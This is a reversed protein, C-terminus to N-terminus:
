EGASKMDTKPADMEDDEASGGKSTDENEYPSLVCGIIRDLDGHSVRRKLKPIDERSFLPKGHENVAKRLLLEIYFENTTADKSLSKQIQTREALTHPLVYFGGIKEGFNSGDELLLFQKIPDEAMASLLADIARFGEAM